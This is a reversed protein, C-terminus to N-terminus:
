RGSLGGGDARDPFSNQSKSYDWHVTEVIGDPRHCSVESETIHVVYQSEPDLQARRADSPQAMVKALVRSSMWSGFIRPGFHLVLYILIALILLTIFDM